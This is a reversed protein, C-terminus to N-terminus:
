KKWSSSTGRSATFTFSNPRVKADLVLEAALWRLSAVPVTYVVPTGACVQRSSWKKTWTSRMNIKWISMMSIRRSSRKYKLKIFMFVTQWEIVMKLVIKGPPPHRKPPLLHLAIPSTRQLLFWNQQWGDSPHVQCQSSMSFVQVTSHNSTGQYPYIHKWFLGVKFTFENLNQWNSINLLM